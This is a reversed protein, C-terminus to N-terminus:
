KRRQARPSPLSFRFGGSVAHLADLYKILLSSGSEGSRGLNWCRTPDASCSAVSLSLPTAALLEFDNGGLHGQDGIALVEERIRSSIAELVAAKTTGTSVIDASHASAVVKLALRPTRSISEAVLAALASGGIRSGSPLEITVQFKRRDIKVLSGIPSEELRTAAEALDGACEHQDPIVENLSLVLAGNYLGLLIEGWFAKPIWKRLDRHLSAGRGSAFGIVMGSELLRTIATRVPEPTLEYRRSTECCTGDYDLVVGGLKARRLLAHWQDFAHIYRERLGEDDPSSGSALLKREVPGVKRARPVGPDRLHYLRRGFPPVGPRSPEVGAARATSDTLQMSAIMLELASAPWPETTRVEILDTESPLQPITADALQVYQPAIFAVVSTSAVQKSFGAHRGHAFNRYDTLQVHSLGLESMRTEFDVGPAAHRAGTLVVSAPRVRADLPREFVSLNRPLVQGSGRYAKAIAVAMALVSSTALFGERGPPSPLVIPRIDPRRLSAPLEEQPRLTVLGISRYGRTSARRAAALIDPHRAGASLLLVSANPDHPATSFESPTMAKAIRDTEVEHLDSALRAVALAGGSAVVLLPGPHAETVWDELESIRAERLEAFVAPLLRLEEGYSRRTGDM